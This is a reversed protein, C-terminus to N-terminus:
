NLNDLWRYTLLINLHHLSDMLALYPKPVGPPPEIGRM